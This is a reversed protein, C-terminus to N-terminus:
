DLMEKGLMKCDAVPKGASDWCLLAGAKHMTKDIEKDEALQCKLMQGNEHFYNFFGKCRMGKVEVPKAVELRRLAGGKYFSIWSGAPIDKVGGVSAPATTKCRRLTGEPTLSFSDKCSIGNMVVPTVLYCGKLKGDPYFEAMKAKACTYNGFKADDALLCSTLNGKAGTRKNNDNKCPVDASQVASSSFCVMLFVWISCTHRFLHRM